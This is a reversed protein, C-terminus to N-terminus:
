EDRERAQEAGDRLEQIARRQTAEGARITRADRRSQRSTHGWWNHLRKVKFDGSRAVPNESRWRDGGASQYTAWYYRDADSHGSQDWLVADPIPIEV